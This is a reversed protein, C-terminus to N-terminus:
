GGSLVRDELGGTDFKFKFKFEHAMGALRTKPWILALRTLRLVMM